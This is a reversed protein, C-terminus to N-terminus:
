DLPEGRVLREIVGSDQLKTIALNIQPMLRVAPSKKSLGLYFTEANTPRRAPRIDIGVYKRVLEYGVADNELVLDIRGAVLMAFLHEVSPGLVPMIAGSAFAADIEAGYSYGEVIGVRKGHLDEISDWEFVAGSEDAVSWVLQYGTVLPVSYEMYREREATKLLIAIGDSHGHEVEHLARKWPILPFRAEAGDIQAFVRNVIEVAVGSDAYGGLKGNVYPPWPDGVLLVTQQASVPLIGAVLLALFPLCRRLSALRLETSQRMM